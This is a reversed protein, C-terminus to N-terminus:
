VAVVGPASAHNPKIGTTGIVSIEHPSSNTTDSIVLGGAASVM